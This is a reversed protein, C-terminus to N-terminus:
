PALSCVIGGAGRACIDARNDNNVDGLMMTTAYQPANWGLADTYERPMVNRPSDFTLGNSLACVIGYQGRACLDAKADGNVDGLRFTRYYVNSNAWGENKFDSRFSWRRALQLFEDNPGGSVGAANLSLACYIGEERAVYSSGDNRGLQSTPDATLGPGFGCVDQRGDGNIDGWQLTSGYREVSWNQLHPGAFESVYMPRATFSSLQNIACTVSGDRACFDALSDGNVDAARFSLYRDSSGGYGTDDFVAATFVANNFSFSTSTACWIGSQGRLCVDARLDGNVDALQMTAGYKEAGWGAGDSFSTTWLTASGFKRGGFSDVINLACWIGSSRRACVDAYGDGSVDGLRISGYVSPTTTMQSDYSDGFSSTMQVADALQLNWTQLGSPERLTSDKPYVTGTCHKLAVTTNSTQLELCFGRPGRLQGNSLLAWSQRSTTPPSICSSLTPVTGTTPNAGADLCLSGFRIQGTSGSVGHTLTWRTRNGSVNCDTVVLSVGSVNLCRHAPGNIASLTGTLSPTNLSLAASIPFTRPGWPLYAGPPCRTEDGLCYYRVNKDYRAYTFHGLWKEDRESVTLNPRESGVTAGDGTISYGRFYQLDHPAAYNFHAELGFAGAAWHDANDPGYIGLGTGTYPELLRIRSAGCDRYIAAISSIVLARDYNKGELNTVTTGNLVNPLDVADHMRFFFLRVQPENPGGALTFRQVDVNGAAVFRDSSWMYNLPDSTTGSGRRTTMLFYLDRIGRERDLYFLRGDDDPTTGEGNDGATLYISCLSSGSKLSQYTLPNMFYADDDEHALVQVDSRSLALSSAGSSESPTGGCAAAALGSFAVLAWVRKYKM